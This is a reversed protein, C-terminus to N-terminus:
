RLDPVKSGPTYHWVRDAWATRTGTAAATNNSPTCTTYVRGHETGWMTLPTSLATEVQGIEAATKPSSLSAAFPTAPLFQQQASRVFDQDCRAFTQCHLTTYILCLLGTSDLASTARTSLLAMALVAHRPFCRGVDAGVSGVQRYTPM